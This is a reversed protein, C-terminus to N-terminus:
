DSPFPSEPKSEGRNPGENFQDDHLLNELRKIREADIVQAARFGNELYNRQKLEEMKILLEPCYKEAIRPDLGPMMPKIHVLYLTPDDNMKVLTRGTHLTQLTKRKMQRHEDYSVYTLDGIEEFDEHDQVIVESIGRAKSHADTWHSGSGSSSVEGSGLHHIWDQMNNVPYSYSSQRSDSQSSQDSGGGGHSEVDVNTETTERHSGSIRQKKTMILHKIGRPDFDLTALEDAMIEADRGSVEFV